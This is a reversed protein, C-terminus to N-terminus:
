LTTHDRRWQLLLGTFCLSWVRTVEPLEWFSAWRDRPVQRPCSSSSKTVWQGHWGRIPLTLCISSGESPVGTSLKTDMSHWVKLHSVLERHPRALEKQSDTESKGLDMLSQQRFLPYRRRREPGFVSIMLHGALEERKLLEPPQLPM